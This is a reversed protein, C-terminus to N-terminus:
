APVRVRVTTGHDPASDVELTGQLAEARSRLNGLGQGRECATDQAFGCGNDSIELVADGGDIHLRVQVSSGGSHRMANSIAERAAQIVDLSSGALLAAARREIAVDVKMPTSRRFTEALDRVAQELDDGACQGRHLGFIYDRLDRITLDISRVAEALRTRVEAADDAADEAAQLSLGVVFLAQVIGDHLERAIRDREELLALRELEARLEGHRLAIAAEAAFAEVLLSQEDDFGPQGARNIVGLTGFVSDAAALPAFLAAGMGDLVGGPQIEGYHAPLDAVMRPRRLKMVEHTLSGEAPFVMGVLQDAHEGAAARITMTGPDTGATAVTAVSAEVIERAARAVHLLVESTERGDLLAESVEIIAKLAAAHEV